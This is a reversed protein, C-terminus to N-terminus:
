CRGTRTSCWLRCSTSRSRPLPPTAAWSSTSSGSWSAEDTLLNWEASGVRSLLSGRRPTVPVARVAPAPAPQVPASPPGDRLQALHQDLDNLQHLALNCLARQWRGQPDEDDAPAERRVADVEGRLRRTQSILADVTGRQPPQAASRDASLHSPM